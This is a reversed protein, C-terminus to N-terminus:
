KLFDKIMVMAAAPKEFPFLHGGAVSKVVHNHASGELRKIGRHNVTDSHEGIIFLTPTTLKKPLSWANLPLSQYISSELHPACSLQYKGTDTPQLCTDVYGTLFQPEWNAFVKKSAYHDLAAQRSNFISRRRNAAKALPILHTSSTLKLGRIVWLIHKPLLVPDLLITKKFWEPRKIAMLMIVIGGISHGMGILPLPPPNQEFHLIFYDALDSWNQIRGNWHSNGHGPLDPALVQYDDYLPELFPQYLGASYSNAHLFFLSGKKATGQQNLSFDSPFASRM